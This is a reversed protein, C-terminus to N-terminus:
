IYISEAIIFYLPHATTSAKDPFSAPLPPTPSFHHSHLVSLNSPQVCPTIPPYQPGRTGSDRHETAKPACAAPHKIFVSLLLVFFTKKPTHLAPDCPSSSSNFM